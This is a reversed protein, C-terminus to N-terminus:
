TDSVFGIGTGRQRLFNGDGRVFISTWPGLPLSFRKDNRVADGEFLLIANEVDLAASFIKRANARVRERRENGVCNVADRLAEFLIEVDDADAITGLELAFDDSKARPL